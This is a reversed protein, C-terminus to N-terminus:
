VDASQTGKLYVVDFVVSSFKLHLIFAEGVLEVFQFSFRVGYMLPGMFDSFNYPCLM